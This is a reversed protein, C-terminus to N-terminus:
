KATPWALSHRADGSAKGRNNFSREHFQLQGETDVIIATSCRTGYVPLHIFISSLQKELLKEVGTSPLEHDDAKQESTLLGLLDDSNLQPQQLTEDLASSLRGMKPWPDDIHGNSVAYRGPPLVRMEASPHNTLYVLTQGDCLLLNCGAYDDIRQRYDQAFDEAPTQSSLFNSVLAGRSPASTGAAAAGRANTVAAFRGSRTVGLWTGGQEQDLGALVDPATPWFNAPLTPRRHFEDRNAAVVLPYRTDARWSIAILCM